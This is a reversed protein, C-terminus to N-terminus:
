PLISGNRDLIVGLYKYTMVIPINLLDRKTDVLGNEIMKTLSERRGIDFIGCKNPNIVLSFNKCLGSFIELFETIEETNLIFVMDDAYIKYFLYGRFM